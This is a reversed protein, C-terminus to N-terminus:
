FVGVAGGGLNEAGGVWESNLSVEFPHLLVLDIADKELAKAGHEFVGFVTSM